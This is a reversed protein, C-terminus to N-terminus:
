RAQFAATGRVKLDRRGKSIGKQQDNSHRCMAVGAEAADLLSLLCVVTCGVLVSCLWIVVNAGLNKEPEKKLKGQYLQFNYLYGATACCLCWFKYGYKVPKNPMYTRVPSKGKMKQMAEDVSVYQGMRWNGMCASRFLELVKRITRIKDYGEEGRKPASADFKEFHLMRAIDVFRRYTMCNQIESVGLGRTREWYMEREPLKVVGMYMVIGIFALLIVPTVPQWRSQTSKPVKPNSAYRNTEDSTKQLIAPTM